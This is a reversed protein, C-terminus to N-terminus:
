RATGYRAIREQVSCGADGRLGKAGVDAIHDRACYALGNSWELAPLAKQAELFAIAEEQGARGELTMIGM